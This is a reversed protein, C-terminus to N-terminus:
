KYITAIGISEIGLKKCVDWVEVISGVSADRDAKIFVSDFKNHRIYRELDKVTIAEGNMYLIDESTIVVTLSRKKINKSTVAKPLKVDLGRVVIFNSTLMFFILLLFVCDILPTIDIQKLGVDISLRRRFAM